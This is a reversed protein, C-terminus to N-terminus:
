VETFNMDGDLEGMADYADQGNLWEFPDGSADVQGGLVEEMISSASSEMEEKVGKVSNGAGRKKTPTVSKNIRGSLVGDHKKPSNRAKQARKPTAIADGETKLTSSGRPPAQARRGSDVEEKM